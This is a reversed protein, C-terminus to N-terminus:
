PGEGPPPMEFPPTEFPREDPVIDPDLEPVIIPEEPDLPPIIEPAKGPPPIEIPTPVQKKKEM